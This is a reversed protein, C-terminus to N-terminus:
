PWWNRRFGASRQGPLLRALTWTPTRFVSPSTLQDCQVCPEDCRGSLSWRQRKVRSRVPARHRGDWEQFHFLRAQAARMERASAADRVGVDVRHESDQLDSDVRTGALDIALPTSSWSVSSAPAPQAHEAYM